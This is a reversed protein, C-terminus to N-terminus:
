FKFKAYGTCKIAQLVYAFQFVILILTVFTLILLDFRLSEVYMWVWGNEHM